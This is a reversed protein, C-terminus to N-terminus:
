LQRCSMRKALRLGGVFLVTAIVLTLVRRVPGRRLVGRRDTPDRANSDDGERDEVMNGDHLDNSLPTRQLATQEDRLRMVELWLQEVEQHLGSQEEWVSPQTLRTEDRNEASVNALQEASTIREHGNNNTAKTQM